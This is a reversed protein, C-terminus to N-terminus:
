GGAARDPIGSSSDAATFAALSPAKLKLTRRVQYPWRALHSTQQDRLNYTAVPLEVTTGVASWSRSAM